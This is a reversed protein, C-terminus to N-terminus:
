SEVNNKLLGEKPIGIIFKCGKQNSKDIKIDGGHKQIIKKTISLGLGTGGYKTNRSIDGKVFPEFATHLIENPIGVGDDQIILIAQDKEEKIKISLTTKEGSHRISNIIVNSIARELKQINIKCFVPENPIEFLYKMHHDELEQIFSILMRRMFECLDKQEMVFDHDIEMQSLEFLDQILNNARNSNNVIIDIYNKMDFSLDECTLLTQAYGLINTLPTKLDHSIDLVLRKRNEEAKERLSMEEHIKDTMKNIANKLLGLENKEEFEIKHFYDGKSIIAVGELLHNIPQVLQISTVKAYLVMAVILSIMFFSATVIFIDIFNEPPPLYMLLFEDKGKPYYVDFGYYDKFIMQNFKKKTYQYGIKHPSHFSKVITFDSDIYELYSGEPLVELEFAKQMGYQNMNKYIREMDIPSTEYMSHVYLYNAIFTLGIIVLLLGFLFIYNILFQRSISNANFIKFRNKINTM